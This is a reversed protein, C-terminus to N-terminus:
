SKGQLLPIDYQKWLAELCYERREESLDKLYRISFGAKRYQDPLQVVNEMADSFILKEALPGSGATSRAM